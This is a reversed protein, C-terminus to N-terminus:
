KKLLFGRFINHNPPHNSKNHVYLPVNNPKTFPKYKASSLNLTVGLFDVVNMNAEISIRLGHKNFIACLDKKIMETERPTAKVAGLGDDRYLGFSKGHKESIQHM